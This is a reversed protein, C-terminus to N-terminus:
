KQFDAETDTEEQFNIKEITENLGEVDDKVEEIRSISTEQLSATVQAFAAEFDAERSKGKGKGQDSIALNPTMGFMGRSMGYMPMSNGYMGM